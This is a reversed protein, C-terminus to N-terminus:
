HHSWQQAVESVYSNFWMIAEQWNLWRMMQMTYDRQNTVAYAKKTYDIHLQESNETNFGNLSGLLQILKIYHILSHLKPFISINVVDSVLM